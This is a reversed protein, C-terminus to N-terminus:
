QRYRPSHGHLLVVLDWLDLGVGLGAWDLGVLDVVGAVDFWVVVKISDTGITDLACFLCGEHPQNLFKFSM